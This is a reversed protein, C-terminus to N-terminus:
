VEVIEFSKIAQGANNVGQLVAVILAPDIVSYDGLRHDITHEGFEGISTVKLAQM